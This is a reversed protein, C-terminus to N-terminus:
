KTSSSCVMACKCSIGDYFMVGLIRACTNSYLTNYFLLYSQLKVRREGEHLDFPKYLGHWSATSSSPYYLAHLASNGRSSAMCKFHVLATMVISCYTLYFSVIPAERFCKSDPQKIVSPTQVKSVLYLHLSADLADNLVCACLPGTTNDM